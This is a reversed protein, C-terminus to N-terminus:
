QFIKDIAASPTNAHENRPPDPRGGLVMLRVVVNSSHKSNSMLYPTERVAPKSGRCGYLMCAAHPIARDTKFREALGQRLKTPIPQAM